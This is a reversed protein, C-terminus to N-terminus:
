AANQSEFFRREIDSTEAEVEKGDLPQGTLRDAWRDLDRRDYLVRRLDPLTTPKPGIERLKTESLGVYQAALKVSMLRPWHPINAPATM